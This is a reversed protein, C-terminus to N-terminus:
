TYHANLSIVYHWFPFSPMFLTPLSEMMSLYTFLSTYLTIPLSEMMSLYTAQNFSHQCHNCWALIFLPTYHQYHTCQLLVTVKIMNIHFTNVMVFHTTLHLCHQYDNWWPLVPLYTPLHQHDNWWPLVPLYTNITNITMGDHYFLYTPTLLTSPWEM